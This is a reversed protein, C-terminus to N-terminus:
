PKVPKQHGAYAERLIEIPHFVKYSTLQTFQLRCSLCDTVINEPDIEKIKAILRNGLHVSAHHFERKFGMTGAMGCCLLEGKIPALTLGPIM